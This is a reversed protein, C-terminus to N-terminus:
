VPEVRVERLLRDVDERRVEGALPTLANSAGCAAAWRLSDTFPEGRSISAALGAAFADGSGIPNIPEIAPTNVHYYRTDHLALAGDRGM